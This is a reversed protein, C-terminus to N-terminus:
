ILLLIFNVSFLIILLWYNFKVIKSDNYKMKADVMILISVMICIIYSDKYYKKFFIEILNPVLVLIGFSLFIQILGNSYKKKM